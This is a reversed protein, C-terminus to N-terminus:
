IKNELEKYSSYLEIGADTNILTNEPGHLRVEYRGQQGVPEDIYLYVGWDGIINNNFLIDGRIYSFQIFFDEGSPYPMATIKFTIEGLKFSEGEKYDELQNYHSHKTFPFKEKLLKRTYNTIKNEDYIFINEENKLIDKWNM